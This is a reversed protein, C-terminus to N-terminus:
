RDAQNTRVYAIIQNIFLEEDQRFTVSIPLAFLHEKLREPLACSRLRAADKATTLLLDYGGKEYRQQIALLDKQTFRHHDAYTMVGVQRYRKKVEQVLPEPVAIGAVLLVREVKQSVPLAEAFVPQLDGYRLASFYLSQYAPLHLTTRVVRQDMASMTEPCKTVVIANARLSGKKQERLRGWPMLHDNVYLSNAPTLLLSFGCQVQRHQFADDLVVVQLDPFLAQLQELGEKRNKCVAVRVEIPENQLNLRMQLPEDGVEDATSALTVLHFGKTKRKYGRSLIAVRYGAQALQHVLYETMPTKGTGGVALNGVCITPLTPMYAHLLHADYFANRLAVGVGYLGAALPRFIM